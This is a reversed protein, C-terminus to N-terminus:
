PVLLMNSESPKIQATSREMVKGWLLKHVMKEIKCSNLEKRDKGCKKVKDKLDEAGGLKYAGISVM